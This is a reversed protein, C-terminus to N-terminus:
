QRIGKSGQNGFKGQNFPAYVEVDLIENTVGGGDIKEVGGIILAIEESFIDNKLGRGSVADFVLSTSFPEWHNVFIHWNDMEKKPTEKEM